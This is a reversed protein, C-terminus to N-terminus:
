PTHLRLYLDAAGTLAPVVVGLGAVTLAVSRATPAEITRWIKEGVSAGAAMGLGGALALIVVLAHVWIVAALLGFVLGAVLWSWRHRLGTARVLVFAVGAPFFPIPLWTMADEQLGFFRAVGLENPLTLLLPVLVVVLLLWPRRVMGWVMGMASGGALAALPVCLPNTRTLNWTLEIRAVHQFAAQLQLVPISSIGRITDPTATALPGLLRDQSFTFLLVAFWPAGATLAADQKRLALSM